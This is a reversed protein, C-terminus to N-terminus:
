YRPMYMSYVIVNFPDVRINSGNNKKKQLTASYPTYLVM